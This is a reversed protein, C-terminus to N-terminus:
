SLMLYFVKGLVIFWEDGGYTPKRSIGIPKVETPQCGGAERWETYATMHELAADTDNDMLATEFAHLCAIPDM